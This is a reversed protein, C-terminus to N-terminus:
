DFTYLPVDCAPCAIVEDPTRRPATYDGCCSATTTEELATGCVPCAQLFMRLEGAAALRTPRDLRERDELASVAAIEAIVVPRRLWTESEITRGDSLVVWEAEESTVASVESAPTVERTVAALTQTDLGRLDAMTARWDDYFEPTLVLHEGDATLVGADLLTELIAEGDLDPPPGEGRHAGPLDDLADSRGEPPSGTAGPHLEEDLGLTDVIRPAFAPTYPIFYGRVWVLIGGLAAVLLAAVPQWLAVLACVGGLTLLNIATCPWCRQDGTYEPRGPGIGATM